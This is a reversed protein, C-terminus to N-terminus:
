SAPADARLFREVVPALRHPEAILDLHGGRYVHLESGAILRHMIRGNVLPILPDDDGALVLAPRRLLPLLPLSTWGTGALLQYYYGRDPGARGGAHLLEAARAPSSRMSGGYIEGAISM